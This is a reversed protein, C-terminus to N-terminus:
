KAVLNSPPNVTTPVPSGNNELVTGTGLNEIDQGNAYLTNSKVQVGVATPGVSIGIPNQYVTNGSVIAGPCGSICLSVAIGISGPAIGGYVTNDYAVNNADRYLGIGTSARSTNKGFNYVTNGRILNDHPYPANQEFIQMGWGTWDHILNGQILSNTGGFYIGHAPISCVPNSNFCMGGDHIHNSIIRIDDAVGTSTGVIVGNANSNKLENNSLQIHNQAIGIAGSTSDANSADFVFGDIVLYSVDCLAAWCGENTSAINVISGDRSGDLTVTEGPAAKIMTPNAWSSGSPLGHGDTGPFVYSVIAEHYTGAHVVLTDGSNLCTTGSASSTQISAKAHADDDITAQACSHSDSGGQRVYYTAANASAAILCFLLAALTKM